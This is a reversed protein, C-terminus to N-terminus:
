GRRLFYYVIHVLSLFFELLSHNFFNSKGLNGAGESQLLLKLTELILQPPVGNEALAAQLSILSSLDNTTAGLASM